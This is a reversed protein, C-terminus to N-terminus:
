TRLNNLRTIPSKTNTTSNSLRNLTQTTQTKQKNHEKNKHAKSAKSTYKTSADEKCTKPMGPKLDPKALSQAQTSTRRLIKM